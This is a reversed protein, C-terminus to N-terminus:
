HCVIILVRLESSSFDDPGREDAFSHVFDEAIWATGDERSVVGQPFEWNMVNQHAVLLTGRM